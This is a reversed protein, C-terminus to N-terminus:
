AFFKVWPRLRVERVPVLTNVKLPTQYIVGIPEHTGAYITGDMPRYTLRGLQPRNVELKALCDEPTDGEVHLWGAEGFIMAHNM